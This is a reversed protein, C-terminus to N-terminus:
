EKKGKGSVIREGLYANMGLSILVL